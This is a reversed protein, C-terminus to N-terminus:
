SQASDDCEDNLCSLSPLTVGVLRAQRSAIATPALDHSLIYSIVISRLVLRCLYEVQTFSDIISHGFIETCFGYFPKPCVKTFVRIKLVGVEVGKRCQEVQMTIALQNTVTQGPGIGLLQQM